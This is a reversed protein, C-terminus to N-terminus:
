RTGNPLRSEGGQSACLPSILLPDVNMGVGQRLLRLMGRPFPPCICFNWNAQSRGCPRTLPLRRRLPVEISQEICIASM